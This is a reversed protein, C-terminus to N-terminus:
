WVFGSEDEPGSGILKLKPNAALPNASAGVPAAGWHRTADVQTTYYEILHALGAMPM